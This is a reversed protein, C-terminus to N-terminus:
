GDNVVVGLCEALVPALVALQGSSIVAGRLSGPDIIIGLTAGRLDTGDLRARSFDTGTLQSGPFSCGALRADAFDVDRLVCNDFTVDTLTAARFNVADLKCGSFVVRRLEAGFVEVGALASARVTVDLWSTEPMGTGTLRVDRLWVDRLGARQLAGGTVSVRRFACELFRSNPANPADLALGDFMLTDYEEHAALGGEHVTLASAFPLDALEPWSM